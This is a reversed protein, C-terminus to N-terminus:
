ANTPLTIISPRLFVIYFLGEGLISYAIFLNTCVNVFTIADLLYLLSIESGRILSVYFLANHLCTLLNYWPYHISIMAFMGM